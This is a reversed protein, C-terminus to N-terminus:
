VVPMREGDGGGMTSQMEVTPAAMMSTAMVLPAHCRRLNRDHHAVYTQQDGPPINMGLVRMYLIRLKIYTQNLIYAADDRESLIGYKAIVVLCILKNLIVRL